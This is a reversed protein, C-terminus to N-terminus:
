VNYDAGGYIKSETETAKRASIIRTVTKSERCCYCVFLLREVKSLGIVIFRNERQSHTEDDFYYANEDQFVTAAEKFSVGHKQLNIRSKVPDWDFLQGKIALM